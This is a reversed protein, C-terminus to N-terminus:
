ARGRKLVSWFETLAIRSWTGCISACRLVRNRWPGATNNALELDQDHVCLGWAAEGALECLQPWGGKDNSARRHAVFAEEPRHDGTLYKLSWEAFAPIANANAAHLAQAIEAHGPPEQTVLGQSNARPRRIGREVQYYLIQMLARNAYGTTQDYPVRPHDHHGCVASEVYETNLGNKRCCYFFYDDEHGYGYFLEEFGGVRYFDSKKMAFPGSGSVWGPRSGERPHNYWDVFNGDRDLNRLLGTAVCRGALVRDALDAIVTPSEHEIEGCQLVLVDSSSLIACLNWCHAIDQFEPYVERPVSSYRCGLEEAVQQTVGDSGSEVIIIELPGPYNQRRISAITRPLYAARKWVPMGISVSIM